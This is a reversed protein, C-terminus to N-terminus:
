LELHGNECDIRGSCQQLPIGYSDECSYDTNVVNKFQCLFTKADCSDRMLEYSCHKRNPFAYLMSISYNDLNSNPILQKLGSGFEIKIQTSVPTNFIIDESKKYKIINFSDREVGQKTSLMSDFRDKYNKFCESEQAQFVFFKTVNIIIQHDHLFWTSPRLLQWEKNVELTVSLTVSPLPVEFNKMSADMGYYCEQFEVKNQYFQTYIDGLSSWHEQKHQIKFELSGDDNFSKEMKEINHFHVTYDKIFFLFDRKEELTPTKIIQILETIHRGLINVANPTSVYSIINSNELQQNKFMHEAINLTGPTDFSVVPLSLGIGVLQALGGGLSHGVIIKEKEPYKNAVNSAFEYAVKYQSPICGLVFCVNSIWDVSTDDTGRFAIVVSENSFFSVGFFGLGNFFSGSKQDGNKWGNKEYHISDKYSISAFQALLKHNKITNNM